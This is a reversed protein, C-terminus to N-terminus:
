ENMLFEVELISVCYAWDPGHLWMREEKSTKKWCQSNEKAKYACNIESWHGPNM